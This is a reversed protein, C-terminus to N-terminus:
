LLAGPPPEGLTLGRQVLADECRLCRFDSGYVSRVTGDPLRGFVHSMFTGHSANGGPCFPDETCEDGDVHRILKGPCQLRWRRGEEAAVWRKEYSAAASRCHGKRRLHFVPSPAGPLLLNEGDFGISSHKRTVPEGCSWCCGPLIKELESLKAAQRDVEQTIELEPCPWPEGCDKCVPYHEPLVYAERGWYRWPRIKVHHRKGGDAPYLILYVPRGRWDEEGSLKYAKREKEWAQRDDEDWDIVPTLRVEAVRWIKRRLEILDGAALDRWAKRQGGQPEWGSVRSWFLSV